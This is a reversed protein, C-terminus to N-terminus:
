LYLEYYNNKFKVYGKIKLYKKNFIFTNYSKLM